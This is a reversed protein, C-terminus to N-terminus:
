DKLLGLNNLYQAIDELDLERLKAYTQFGTENDWGRLAYYEDKLKEFDSKDLIANKRSIQERGEGPAICEPNKFMSDLPEKHYFDM